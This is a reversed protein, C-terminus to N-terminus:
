EEIDKAHGKSQLQIYLVLSNLAKFIIYMLVLSIIVAIFYGITTAFLPLNSEIVEKIVDLM